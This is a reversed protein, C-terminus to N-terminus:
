KITGLDKFPYVKIQAKAEIEEGDIYSDKWLRSDCSDPRNDGLFFYKGEPVHYEGNFDDKNVVYDEDLQEGNVSVQGNVISIYDGPLGILRKILLNNLEKSNFVIIDGRKLNNLNCVKTVLLHDGVNLTPVMSSSPIYVKCILFQKLLLVIVVSAIIRSIWKFLVGKGIMNKKKELKKVIESDGMITVNEYFVEEMVNRM